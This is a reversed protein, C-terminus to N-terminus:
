CFAYVSSWAQIGCYWLFAINVAHTYTSDAAVRSRGFFLSCTILFPVKPLYKKMQCFRRFLNTHHSRPMQPLVRYRPIDHMLKPNADTFRFSNTSKVGYFM